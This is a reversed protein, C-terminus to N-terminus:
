KNVVGRTLPGFLGNAPKIKNAKQFKILAAKTAPGFKTIEKGLSGAGYKAIIYGHSNLYKQLEKVDNSIMGLFLNKKFIFKVITVPAKDNVVAPVVTTLSSVTIEARNVYTNAFTVKIDNKKDGDIDVEKSEGKKLNLTQPESSITITVLGNVLDLSTIQFSHGGLVWGHSSEPALFNNLNNIYTLVNTGSYSITGVNLTVGLAPAPADTTGTGIGPPLYIPAGGGSSQAVCNGNTLRYGSVCTAVGCTPYSNYTAAHAVIDCTPEVVPTFTVVPEVPSYNRIRVNDIWLNDAQCDFAYNTFSLSEITGTAFVSVEQWGSDYSCDDGDCSASTDWIEVGNVEVTSTMTATGSPFRFDIEQWMDFDIAYNDLAPLELTKTMIAIVGDFPGTGCSAYSYLKACSSPSVFKTSTAILSVYDQAHNLLDSSTAWGSVGGTDFGDYFLFTDDASSLSDSIELYGYNMYITTTAYGELAPVKVWITTTASDSFTQIYHSIVSDDELTFYIDAGTSSARTFDFEDPQFTVKIQYDTLTSTANYITIPLEYDHQLPTASAFGAGFVFVGLSLLFFSFVKVKLSDVRM